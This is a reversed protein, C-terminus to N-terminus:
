SRYSPVPVTSVKKPELVVVRRLSAVEERGRTSGGGGGVETIGVRHEDPGKEVPWAYQMEGTNDIELNLENQDNTCLV